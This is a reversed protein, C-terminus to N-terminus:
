QTDEPDFWGKGILVYADDRQGPARTPTIRFSCDSEVSPLRAAEVLAKPPHQPQIPASGSYAAPNRHADACGLIGPVDM